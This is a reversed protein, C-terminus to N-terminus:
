EPQLGTQLRKLYNITQSLSIKSLPTETWGGLFLFSSQENDLNLWNAAFEQVDRVDHGENENELTCNILLIHGALCAITGCETASIVVKRDEVWFRLDSITTVHTVCTIAPHSLWQSMNFKHDKKNLKLKVLHDIIVSLNQQNIAAKIETYFKKKAVRSARM